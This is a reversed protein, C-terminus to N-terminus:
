NQSAQSLTVKFDKQSGDRVVTITVEEGVKCDKLAKSLDTYSAVEKDNLAIIRDYAELGAKAAGSGEVVESIYLGAKFNVQDAMLETLYVGITPRNVVYGNAILDDVVLKADNIPIAFGLGEISTGSLADSGSKANVIGILEGNQNFLGGGSNGPNIAANTQLLNYTENELTIERDLASIIGNTVTGGLSGLPNGIAVATDGVQLKSSDGITAPTLGTAEIKIVAIDSKKDSGVVQAQYNMGNELTVYVENAGDVVHHNTVIYGDETLIVGSGAGEATYAQDFVNMAIQETKIEVVSPKAIAAIQQITMGENKNYTLSLPLTEQKPAEEVVAEPQAEQGLSMNNMYKFSAVGGGIGCAFAIIATLLYQMFHSEKKPAKMEFENEKLIPETM